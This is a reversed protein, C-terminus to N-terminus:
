SYLMVGIDVVGGSNNQIKVVGTEVYVNITGANDKAINFNANTGLQQTAVTGGTDVILFVTSDTTTKDRVVLMGANDDIATTFVAADALALSSSGKGTVGESGPDFVSDGVQGVTKYNGM